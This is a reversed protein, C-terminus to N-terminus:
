KKGDIIKSLYLAKYYINPHDINDFKNKKQVNPFLKKMNNEEEKTLNPYSKGFRSRRYAIYDDVKNNINNTKFLKIMITDEGIYNM